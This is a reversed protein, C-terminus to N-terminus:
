EMDPAESKRVPWVPHPVPDKARFLYKAFIEAYNRYVYAENRRQYHARKAAYMRPLHYWPVAPHMHHVVHLNNNLFLLSLPGRDEIIVTRARFAVHARHELFTRIKLLSYGIYAALVYALVPMTGFSLLWALVMAVGVGNLVWAKAIGRDGARILALDSKVFYYTGIAPGLLMRGLLTNNIRLLKQMVRPTREWVAPDLYNSEANAFPHGHLVEHQLSSYQAIAISTLVLSLLASVEWLLTGTAWVVYTLALLALTPWEIARAPM